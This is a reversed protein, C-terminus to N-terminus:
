YFDFMSYTVYLFFNLESLLDRIDEMYLEFYSVTCKISYEDSLSAIRETIASAVRPIIGMTDDDM